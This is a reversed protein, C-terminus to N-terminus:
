KRVAGFTIGRLLHKRLLVTFILIPLLFLTTGAGVAPWDLGGEGIITPIFPPATQANGSTLLVAFAYENWAFILCFIATAAIGTAAQPLVVKVFAQLRSYGDIMAAEEYERPIEDIFGKLLWVALSINVATYLLILGLWTDSLGLTRYMLFIPIAVAIPPMFRTSLIFFLLDDKLPVRFRSFAYAALVGLFVSLFTSGFGVVVSNLFREGFKSPGAIVMNRSRVLEDYWTEAPPLSAMYEPSQRSRTTFVNVYGELTPTFVLKPPYAISDPPTKFGTAFIWLLPIMSLLAYLVVIIGAVLRTRQSPEVVSHATTATSM